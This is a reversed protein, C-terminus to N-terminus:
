VGERLVDVLFFVGGNKVIKDIEDIFIIGGEEVRLVVEQSVEDMDILKGVEENILVKRVERVMMKCCKKKKFVLNSLVDQMNM